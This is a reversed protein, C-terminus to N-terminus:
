APRASIVAQITAPLLQAASAGEESYLAHAPFAERQQELTRARVTEVVFLPNGETEQYLVSAVSLPLDRGAVQRALLATSTSDLPELPYETVLRDRRLTLLLSTLPHEPTVEESRM